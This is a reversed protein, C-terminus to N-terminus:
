RGWRSAFCSRWATVKRRASLRGCSFSLRNSSSNSCSGSFLRAVRRRSFISCQSSAPMPQQARRWGFNASCNVMRELIEVTLAVLEDSPADHRVMHMHEHFSESGDGPDNLTPFGHGGAPCQGVIVLQFKADRVWLVKPHSLIQISVDAVVRMELIGHEVDMLVGHFGAEALAGLIPRPGAGSRRRGRRCRRVGRGVLVNASGDGRLDKLFKFDTSIKPEHGSWRNKLINQAGKAIPSQM